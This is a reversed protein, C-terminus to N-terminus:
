NEVELGEYMKQKELQMKACDLEVTMEEPKEFAGKPYKKALVPDAYLKQFFKGWVPLALVAGQGYMITKFRTAQTDGGVWVGAALSRTYGMFWADANWQTTGTKCAIENNNGVGYMGLAVSTAGAVSGDCSGMMMYTMQYALEESIAQRVKPVFEHILNGHRDEIRTIFTPETHRGKNAFTAYVGTLEFINVDSTGLCLTATTDLPSNIGLDRAYNIAEKTGLHRILHAVISNTSTAIGVRLSMPAGSWALNANKPTWGGPFVVPQDVVQSCPTYGNDLAMAYIIPKFTSGPQRKGLYVHDYKFHKFNAGGVWAKVQGTQTEMVMFGAQLFHKYHRISDMPSMTTDKEIFEGNKYSIVRMRLPTNMVEKIKPSSEGYAEVMKKYRETKKAEREIFNPIERNFGDVWPNQGGQQKWYDLFIGQFKGLHEMVSEEAYKQMRTDITTYIRLGDKYLDRKNEAAWKLLYKQLEARFYPAIGAVHDEVGFHLEIPQKKFYECQDKSLFGYKEMQEMVTNRRRKSNKPNSIPSYYTPAKLLGILVASEQVNLQSPHKDFFTRSATSIGFANSGFEVTNLYMEIIERKTYNREIKIATLWEKSKAIIIGIFPTQTLYGKSEEQRMRFLNKALQQSLTSGGGDRGLKIVARILAYADIGSHEEFRIDETAVLANILYPSIEEYKVPTRNERYYKGMLVNDASYVESALENRPNELEELSPIAGFLGFLNFSLSIFYLFILFLAGFFGIWLLKIARYYKGKIIQM